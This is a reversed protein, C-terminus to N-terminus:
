VGAMALLVAKEPLSLPRANINARTATGAVAALLAAKLELGTQSAQIDIPGQSAANVAVLMQQAALSVAQGRIQAATIAM